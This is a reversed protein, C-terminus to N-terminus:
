DKRYRKGHWGEAAVPLGAAWTPTDCMTKAMVDVTLAGPEVECLIEDYIELVVPHGAAELKLMAATQIDRAVAQTFNEALSGGYTSDRVWQKTLPHVFMYSLAPKTAGWPTPADVIEPFPYCLVRKSPLQAWLFSGSVRFAIGRCRHVGGEQVARIATRELDYWFAPIRPHALRWAQKLQDARDDSVKVGYGKAMTQFAGVGGGYGLALEMVKGVQRQEKDVDAVAVQFSRSYALKYIDPGTGADFDRFADLKWDEGALWALVRGEINSFDCCVFERGPGAVIMSRICDAMLTMPAGYAMDLWATDDLRSLVADIEEPSHLLMPRPLNLPQIRRGASRGTHAGHHVTTGRVRGDHSAGDRMAVLKATSTKAAEQRLLLATRVDDPIPADLLTALAAKDLSDTGWGSFRLWNKLQALDTCGAVVNGTADRMAQDLRAKEGEVLALAKDISTLDVALGRDNIRQYLLWLQQEDASLELMRHHIAREVEVDQKCYAYLTDLKAPDDWWVIEQWGTAGNHEPLHNVVKRPKSLQMMVRGGKADKREPIGLAVAANALAGPLGMAYAMALTCRTQEPKLVPWGYRALVNNWIALEFSANHAYVLGGRAVHKAIRIQSATMREISPSEEGVLQVPEDDFAYALCLVSTTAHRAYNDLGAAKLDCASRTEFDIHLATVSLEAFQPEHGDNRLALVDREM